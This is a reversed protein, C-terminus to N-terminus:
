LVTNAFTGGPLLSVTPSKGGDLTQFTRIARLSTLLQVGVDSLYGLTDRSFRDAAVVIMRHAPRLSTLKRTEHEKELKNALL